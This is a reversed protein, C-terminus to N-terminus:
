PNGMEELVDVHYMALDYIPEGVTKLYLIKSAESLQLVIKNM